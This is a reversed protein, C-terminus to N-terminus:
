TTSTQGVAIRNEADKLKSDLTAALSQSQTDVKHEVQMITSQMAQNQQQQNQQFNAVQTSLQTMQQELQTVRDGVTDQM